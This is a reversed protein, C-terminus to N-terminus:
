RYEQWMKAVEDNLDALGIMHDVLLARENLDEEVDLKDLTREADEVQRVYIFEITLACDATHRYAVGSGFEEVAARTLGIVEPTCTCQATM